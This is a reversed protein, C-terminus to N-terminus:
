SPTDLCVLSNTFDCHSLEMRWLKTELVNGADPSVVLHIEDNLEERVLPLAEVMRFGIMSHLHIPIWNNALVQLCVGSVRRVEFLWRLLAVEAWYMLQGNGGSRGRIMNDLEVIPQDLRLVGIHGIPEGCHEHIFFMIRTSDALIQELWQRTRLATAEFQTLFFQRHRNRWSALMEVLAADAVTANSFAILKGVRENEGNVIPIDLQPIIGPHAGLNVSLEIYSDTM